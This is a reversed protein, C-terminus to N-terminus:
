NKTVEAWWKNRRIEFRQSSVPFESKVEACNWGWWLVCSTHYAPLGSQGAQPSWWVLVAVTFLSWLAWPQPKGSCSIRPSAILLWTNTVCLHSACAGSTCWWNDTVSEEPGKGKLLVLPFSNQCDPMEFLFVSTQITEKFFFLFRKKNKWIDCLTSSLKLFGGTLIWFDM